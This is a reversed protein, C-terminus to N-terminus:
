RRGQVTQTQQPQQQGTSLADLRAELVEIRNAQATEVTQLQQQLGAIQAQQAKLAEILVPVLGVYNVSKYGNGDTTVLDPFLAEVDQAILGIQTGASFNRNPFEDARWQYTVAQLQMVKELPNALFQINKKFRRDSSCTMIGGVAIDGSVRVNGSVALRPYTGAGCDLDTDNDTMAVQQANIIVRGTTTESYFHINKNPNIKVVTDTSAPALFAVRGNSAPQVIVHQALATSGFLTASIAALLSRFFLNMRIHKFSTPLIPWRRCRGQKAIHQHFLSIIQQVHPTQCFFYFIKHWFRKSQEGLLPNNQPLEQKRAVKAGHFETDNGERAAVAILIQNVGDALIQALIHYLEPVFVVVQLAHINNQQRASKRITIIEARPGNGPKRRDHVFHGCVGAPAAIHHANAVSELNQGISAQQRTSQQVVFVGLKDAFINMNLRYAFTRRKGSFEVVAGQLHRNGMTFAVVVAVFIGQFRQFIVVLNEEAVAIGAAIDGWLGVGVAAQVVNSANAVIAEIYKAHHGVGFAGAIRDKGIGVPQCHQLPQQVALIDDFIFPYKM